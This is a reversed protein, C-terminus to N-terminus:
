NKGAQAYRDKQMKLLKNQEKALEAELAALENAQEREFRNRQVNSMADLDVDNTHTETV